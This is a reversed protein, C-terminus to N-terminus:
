VNTIPVLRMVLYVLSAVIGLLGLLIQVGAIKAAIEAAKQEASSNGPILRGIIPMSFLFGLLISCGIVTLWSAGLVPLSRMYRIFGLARILNIVGLVLMGMGIIGQFPMLRNLRVQADPMRAVIVASAALLGGAILVLAATIEM